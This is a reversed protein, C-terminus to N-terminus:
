VCRSTYLLCSRCRRARPKRVPLRYPRRWSRWISDRICMEMAYQETQDPTIRYEDWLYSVAAERAEELKELQAGLRFCEKDLRNRHESLEDRKQFFAKHSKSMAEKQELYSSVQRESEGIASEAAEITKRIEEIDHQKRAADEGEARDRICM